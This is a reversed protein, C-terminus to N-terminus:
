TGTRPNHLPGSVTGLALGSDVQAAAAYTPLYPVLPSETVPKNLYDVILGDANRACAQFDRLTTAPDKAPKKDVAGCCYFAGFGLRAVVAPPFRTRAYTMQGDRDFRLQADFSGPGQPGNECWGSMLQVNAPVWGGFLGTLFDAWTSGAYTIQSNDPLLQIQENWGGPLGASMDSGYVILRKSTMGAVRNIVQGVTLSRAIVQARVVVQSQAPQGASWLWSPTGLATPYNEADPAAGDWGQAVIMRAVAEFWALNHAWIADDFWDGLPANGRGYDYSELYFQFYAKMGAAHIARCEASYDPLTAGVRLNSTVVIGGVGSAKLLALSGMVWPDDGWLVVETDVSGVVVPGPDPGPVPDPDPPPPPPPQKDVQVKVAAGVKQLKAALSKITRTDATGITALGDVLAQLAEHDPM